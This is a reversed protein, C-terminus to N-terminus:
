IFFHEMRILYYLIYRRGIGILIMYVLDRLYIYMKYIIYWESFLYMKNMWLYRGMIIVRQTWIYGPSSSLWCHFTTKITARRRAAGRWEARSWCYEETGHQVGLLVFPRTACLILLSMVEDEHSFYVDLASSEHQVQQVTTTNFNFSQIVPAYNLWRSLALRGCGWGSGFDLWRPFLTDGGCFPGWLLRNVKGINRIINVEKRWM